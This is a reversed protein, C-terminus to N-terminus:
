HYLILADLYSAKLSLHLFARSLLYCAIVDKVLVLHILGELLQNTLPVIHDSLEDSPKLLKFLLLKDILTLLLQM